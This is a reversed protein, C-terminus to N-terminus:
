DPQTYFAFFAKQRVTNCIRAPFGSESTVECVTAVNVWAETDNPKILILDPKRRSAVGPLPSTSFRNNWARSPQHGTVDKLEAAIGNLWQAYRAESTESPEPKPLSIWRYGDYNIKLKNLLTWDVQFPLLNDPFVITPM